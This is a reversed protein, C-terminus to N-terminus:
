SKHYPNKYLIANGKVEASTNPAYTGGHSDVYLSEYNKFAKLMAEVFPPYNATVPIAPKPQTVSPTKTKPKTEEPIQTGADPTGTEKTDTNNSDEPLINENPNVTTDVPPTIQEESIKKAM